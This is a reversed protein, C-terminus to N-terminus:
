LAGKKIGGASAPSPRLASKGSLENYLMDSLGIGGSKSMDKSIEDDRMDRFIEEARGGSILGSEPVTKRMKKMMDSIFIAEFDRCAQKLKAEDKGSAPIQEPTANNQISQIDM